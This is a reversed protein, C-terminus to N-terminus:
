HKHGRHKHRRRRRHKKVRVCKSKGHVKKAKTGKPCKPPSTPHPSGIPAPGAGSGPSPSGVVPGSPSVGAGSSSGSNGGTEGSGGSGSGGGAAAESLSFLQIQNAVPEFAYLSGEPGFDLRTFYSRPDSSYSVAPQCPAIEVGCSEFNDAGDRVGYGFEALFGGGGNFVDIRRNGEDSVYLDGTAPDRVISEPNDMQGEGSGESGFRNTIAPGGLGTLVFAVDDSEYDAVYLGEPAPAIDGPYGFGPSGNQRPSVGNERGCPTSTGSTSGGELVCAEFANGHEDFGKNIGAGMFTQDYYPHSGSVAGADLLAIKNAQGLAALLVGNGTIRIDFGLTGLREGTELDSAVPTATGIEDAPWSLLQDYLSGPTSIYVRGAYYGIGLPDFGGRDITYEALVRGEGDVHWVQGSNSGTSRVVWITGDPALTYTAPNGMPITHGPTLSPVAGAAAPLLALALAVALTTLTVRLWRGLHAHPLSGHEKSYTLKGRLSTM